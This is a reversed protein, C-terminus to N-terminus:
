NFDGHIVKEQPKSISDVASQIAATVQRTLQQLSVEDGEMITKVYAELLLYALQQRQPQVTGYFEPKGGPLVCVEAYCQVTAQKKRDDFEQIVQGRIIATKLSM